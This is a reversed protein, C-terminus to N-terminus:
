MAYTVAARHPNYNGVISSLPVLSKNTAGDLPESGEAAADISLSSTNLDLDELAIEPM